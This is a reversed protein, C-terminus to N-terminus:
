RCLRGRSKEVEFYTKINEKLKIWEREVEIHRSLSSSTNGRRWNYAVHPIHKFKMGAKILRFFAYGGEVALLKPNFIEGVRKLSSARAVWGWPPITMIADKQLDGTFKVVRDTDNETLLYDFYVIDIDPNKILTEIALERNPLMLDDDDAFRIYTADNIIQSLLKNRIASAGNTGTRKNDIEYLVKWGDNEIAEIADRFLELRTVPMICIM